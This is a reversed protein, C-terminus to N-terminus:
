CEFTAIQKRETFRHECDELVYTHFEYPYRMILRFAKFHGDRGCEYQAECHGLDGIAVDACSPAVNDEM